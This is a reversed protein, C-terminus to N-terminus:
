GRRVRYVSPPRHPMTVLLIKIESIVVVLGKSTLSETTHGLCLDSPIAERTHLLSAGAGTFDANKLAQASPLFFLVYVGM